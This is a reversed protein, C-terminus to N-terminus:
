SEDKKYYFKLDNHYTLNKRNISIIQLIPRKPKKKIDILFSNYFSIWNPHYETINSELM